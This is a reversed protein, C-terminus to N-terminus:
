HKYNYQYQKLTTGNMNVIKDLRNDADYQYIERIGSPPTVTTTGILPDYTYTTIQYDKLADLKKFNNLVALLLAEKSPDAADLNSADVISQVFSSVQAYAAGEIKAIPKTKDYGYVVAAPMGAPSTFQIVNGKDDYQNITVTKPAANNINSTIFSTPRTSAANDFKTEIKSILEGDIKEEVVVPTSKIGATMLKAYGSEPYTIFSEIINNDVTKKTTAAEYNFINFSTESTNEISQNNDFYAKSSSTVKKLWGLRTSVAGAGLEINEADSIYDFTYSTQESALLKNQADYVEKKDLLGTSTFNYYPQVNGYNVGNVIYPEMPYDAPIKYYYRVYGNNDDAGSIKVNKYLIFYATNEDGGYPFVSYGSSNNDTFNNYEFKTTKVPAADTKSNFYKISGIRLGPANNNANNFYKRNPEFNYETVGGSPSSVRKLIGFLEAQAGAAETSYEFEQTETVANNRNLKKLKVLSRRDLYNLTYIYEFTYGSILHNYNDKLTVKQIEYPDNMTSELSPNYLYDFEMKGFGPATITKLKCTEYKITAGNKKYKTDKQYSFVALELGDPDLIQTLFFASRFLKHGLYPTTDLNSRSYDKFIYQIGKTDTITFSDFIITASNATKKYDIKIKNLTLNVLKFTNATVDRVVRFRGSIGPLNYYYTDDFENQYYDTSGANDYLEDLDNVISRSIVGGAFLSWGRGVQSAPESESVNMPNYSLGTSLIVGSNYSPLQLLPFSIDPIGTANTVPTNNYSALSSVSPVPNAFDGFNIEDQAYIASSLLGLGISLIKITKKM